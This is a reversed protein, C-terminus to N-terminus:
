FLTRQHGTRWQANGTPRRPELQMQPEEPNPPTWESGPVRYPVSQVFNPTASRVGQARNLQRAVQLVQVGEAKIAQVVIQNKSFPVPRIIEAGYRKLTAAATEPTVGQELSVVIENPLLLTEDRGQRSLVPVTGQVYPLRQVRQQVERPTSRSGPPFSVVAYGQSLPQIEIQLQPGNRTRGQLAQRLQLYPAQGRSHSGGTQKLDVAVVDERVTLPITQGFFRYSLDSASQAVTPDSLTLSTVAMVAGLSSTLLYHLYTRKM